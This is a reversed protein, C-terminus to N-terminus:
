YTSLSPSSVLSMEAVFIGPIMVWVKWDTFLLMLRRSEILVSTHKFVAIHTGDDRTVHKPNVIFFLALLMAMCQIVIFVTYLTNSTNTETANFNIGFAIFSGVTGGFSTLAWQWSIFRGKEDESAYAFQIFGAATWLLAATIGLWAGALYAFWVHGTRDMYWLSGIYIPYGTSAFMIILKPKVLNLITGGLWGSLGYLGFTIASATSVTHQATATSGGAGLGTVALYIGPLCFLISGM